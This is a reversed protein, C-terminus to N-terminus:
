YKEVRAFHYQNKSYEQETLILSDATLSISNSDSMKCKKIVVNWRKPVLAKSSSLVHLEIMMNGDRKWKFWGNGHYSLDEEFVDENEQWEKGWYYGDDAYDDYYAKFWLPNSTEQWLGVLYADAAPLAYDYVGDTPHEDDVIEITQNSKKIILYLALAVVLAIVTTIIIIIKKRKM